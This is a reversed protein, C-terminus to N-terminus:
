AFHEYISLRTSAQPIHLVIGSADRQGHV